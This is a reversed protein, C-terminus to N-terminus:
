TRWYIGHHMFIGVSLFWPSTVMGAFLIISIVTVIPYLEPELQTLTPKADLQTKRDHNNRFNTIQYLLKWRTQTNIQGDPYSQQINKEFYKCINWPM